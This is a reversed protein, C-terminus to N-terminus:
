KISLPVNHLTDQQDADHTSARGPRQLQSVGVLPHAEGFSELVTHRVVCEHYKVCAGQKGPRNTLPTAM